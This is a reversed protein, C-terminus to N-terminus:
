ISCIRRHGFGDFKGGGDGDHREGAHQKKGVRQKGEVDKLRAKALHELVRQVIIPHEADGEDSRLTWCHRVLASKKGTLVTPRM